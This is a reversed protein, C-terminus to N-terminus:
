RTCGKLLARMERENARLALVISGLIDASARADSPLTGAPPVEAPIQSADVCAVAVPVKVIKPGSACGSLLLVLILARM